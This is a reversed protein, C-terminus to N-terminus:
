GADLLFTLCARSMRLTEDWARGAAAAVWFKVCSDLKNLLLGGGAEFVKASPSVEGSGGTRSEASREASEM